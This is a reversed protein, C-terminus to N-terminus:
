STQHLTSVWATNKESGASAVSISFGLIVQETLNRDSFLIHTRGPSGDFMWLVSSLKEPFGLLSTWYFCSGTLTQHSCQCKTPEASVCQTHTHTLPPLFSNNFVCRDLPEDGAERTQVSEDSM